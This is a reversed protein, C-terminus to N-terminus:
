CSGILGVELDLDHAGDAMHVYNVYLCVCVLVFIM